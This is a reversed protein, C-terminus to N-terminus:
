AIPRKDAPLLVRFRAGEGPSSDLHIVAGMADAMQKVISLGLGTSKERGTPLASLRTFRGFLRKRDEATFGPGQDAVVLAVRDPGPEVHVSVPRGRPSFKLANSVLNDIIAVCFRPDAHVWAPGSGAFALPVGKAEASPRHRDVVMRCLGELDLSEPEPRVQGSELSAIDLFRGILAEMERSTAQINRAERRMAEPDEEEEILQAELVIGSLPNRLDHAVIGLFSTKQENLTKLAENAAELDLTRARLERTAEEVAAELLANRRKLARGRGRVLAAVSGTGLVAWSVLAWWSRWWPPRIRFAYAAEAGVNGRVDLARVRFRYSGEWLGLYEKFPERSWASWDRDVGDLRTQFRSGGAPDFAPTAFEFRLRNERYSLSPAPGDLALSRGQATAARRISAASAGPVERDEAPDYRHLWGVDGMWVVGDPDVLMSSDDLTRLRRLGSSEWRYGGGPVPVAAGYTYRLTAPDKMGLWIRGAGDAGFGQMWQVGQPLIAALAHDPVFGGRVTDFRYPGEPTAFRPGDPLTHVTVQYLTPLGQARGFREVEARPSGPAGLIRVRLVGQASTGCWFGGRGDPGGNSIEEHIGEIRGERRWTAGERRLIFLGGVHGVLVRDGDRALWRCPTLSPAVCTASLGNIRYVGTYNAALMDGGLSLLSWTQGSIGAVQRFAPGGAGGPDMRYLGSSTGAYLIGQHRALSLVHSRLGRQAGFRTLPDPYEVRAIGEDMALWLGGERDRYAALVTDCGLGGPGDLIPELRGQGDLALLGGMLTGVAFRGDPLRACSYPLIRALRADGDTPFPKLGQPGLLRFGARTGVLLGRGPLPEVMFVKVEGLPETGPLRRFTDGELEHLGSGLVHVLIRGELNFASYFTGGPPRLARVTAGDWLFIREASLFLVGRPTAVTWWVYTFSRDEAPLGASLSVFRFGGDGGSELYGFEGAAGVCVRGSADLALSRVHHRQETPVMHWRVGDFVMVGLNNAVFVLGRRDQVVAWNQSEGPYDQPGWTRVLPVGREGPRAQVPQFAALALGLWLLLRFPTKM